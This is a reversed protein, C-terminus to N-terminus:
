PDGAVYLSPQEIILVPINSSQDLPTKIPTNNSRVFTRLALPISVSVKLYALPSIETRAISLLVDASKITIFPPKRSPKFAPTTQSMSFGSPVIAFIIIASESKVFLTAKAISPMIASFEVTFNLM